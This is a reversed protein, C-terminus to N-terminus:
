LKIKALAQQAAQQVNTDKDALLQRLAETAKAEKIAGLATAAALRVDSNDDKLARILFEVAKPEGKQGLVSAAAFRVESDNDQLAQILYGVSGPDAILERVAKGSMIMSGITRSSKFAKLNKRIRKYNRERDAKSMAWTPPVGTRSYQNSERIIRFLRFGPILLFYTLTGLFIWGIYVWVPPNHGSYVTFTTIMLGWGCFFGGVLYGFFFTGLLARIPSIWSPVLLEKITLLLKRKQSLDAWMNLGTEMIKSCYGCKVQAPGFRRWGQRIASGCHPCVTYRVKTKYTIM